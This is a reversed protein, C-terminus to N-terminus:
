FGLLREIPGKPLPVLFWREFVLFFVLPVGAAVAGTLLWGYRGYRKMFYTILLASAIYIGLPMIMAVYVTMPVLVAIVQTVQSRMAFEATDRKWALLQRVFIWASSGLMACGIYFPFYGSRPGDDAWDTGVRLADKVVLAGLLMLLAAVALEPGRSRVATDEHPTSM